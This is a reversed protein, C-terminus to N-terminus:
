KPILLPFCLSLHSINYKVPNINKTRVDDYYFGCEYNKKGMGENINIESKSQKFDYAENKFWKSILLYFLTALPNNKIQSTCNKQDICWWLLLRVWLINEMTENINIECILWKFDYDKNNPRNKSIDLYVSHYIFENRNLQFM